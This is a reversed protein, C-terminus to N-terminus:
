QGHDRSKFSQHNEGGPSKIIVRYPDFQIFHQSSGVIKGHRSPLVSPFKFRIKLSYTVAKMVRTFVEAAKKGSEM